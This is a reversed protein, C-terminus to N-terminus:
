EVSVRYVDVFHALIVALTSFNCCLPILNMFVDLSRSIKYVNVFHTYKFYGGNKAVGIDVRLIEVGCKTKRQKIKACLGTLSM